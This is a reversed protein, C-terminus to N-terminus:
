SVSVRDKSEQRPQILLSRDRSGKKKRWMYVAAFVYGYMILRDLGGKLPNFFVSEEKEINTMETATNCTGRAYGEENRRRTCPRFIEQMGMGRSAAADM